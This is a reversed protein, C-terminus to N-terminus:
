DTQFYDAIMAKLVLPCDFSNTKLTLLDNELNVPTTQRYCLKIDKLDYEQRSLLVYLVKNEDQAEGEAPKLARNLTNAFATAPLDHLFELFVFVADTYPQIIAKNELSSVLNNIGHKWSAFEEAKFGQKVLYWLYGFSKTSLMQVTDAVMVDSGWSHENLSQMMRLKDKDVHETNVVNNADRENILLSGLFKNLASNDRFVNLMTEGVKKNYIKEYVERVHRIHKSPRTALVEVIDTPKRKLLAMNIALADRESDSALILQMTKNFGPRSHKRKKNQFQERLKKKETQDYEKEILHRQRTTLGLFLTAIALDTEVNKKKMLKKLEKLKTKSDFTNAEIITPGGQQHKTFSIRKSPLRKIAPAEQATNRPIVVPAQAPMQEEVIRNEVIPAIVVKQSVISRMSPERSFQPVESMITSARSRISGRLSPDPSIGSIVSILDDDDDLGLLRKMEDLEDHLSQKDHLHIELQHQIKELERRASELQEQERAMKVELSQIKNGHHDKMDEISKELAQCKANVEAVEAELMHKQNELDDIERDLARHKQEKEIIDKRYIKIQDTLKELEAEHFRNTAAEIEKRADKIQSIIHGSAEPLSPDEFDVEGNNNLRKELQSKEYTYKENESSIERKLKEIEQALIDHENSARNSEDEAHNISRQLINKEENLSKTKQEILETETKCNHKEHELKNCEESLKHIEDRLNEFQDKYRDHLDDFQYNVDPQLRHRLEKNEQVLREIDHDIEKTNNM